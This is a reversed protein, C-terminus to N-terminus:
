CTGCCTYSANPKIYRVNQSFFLFSWISKSKCLTIKSIYIDFTQFWDLSHFIGLFVKFVNYGINKFLLLVQLHLKKKLHYIKLMNIIYVM